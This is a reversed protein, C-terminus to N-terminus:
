LYIRCWASNIPHDARVWRNGDVVSFELSPPFESQLLELDLKIPLLVLKSEKALITQNVKVIGHKDDIPNGADDLLNWGIACGNEDSSSFVVHLDGTNRVMVPALIGGESDTRLVGKGFLQISGWADEEDDQASITREAITPVASRVADINDAGVYLGNEVMRIYDYLQQDESNIERVLNILGPESLIEASYGERGANARVRRAEPFGLEHQFFERFSSLQEFLGIVMNQEKLTQLVGEFTPEYRTLYGCQVNTIENRFDESQEISRTLSNPDVGKDIWVQKAKARAESWEVSQVEPLTICYHFFSVARQVPDRVVSTYLAPLSRPYFELPKHGGLAMASEAEAANFKESDSNLGYWLVKSEGYVIDLYSRHSTGASKPIHLYVLPNSM